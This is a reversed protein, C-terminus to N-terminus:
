VNLVKIKTTIKRVQLCPRSLRKCKLLRFERRRLGGAVPQTIQTRQYIARLVSREVQFAGREAPSPEYDRRLTQFRAIEQRIMQAAHPLNDGGVTRHDFLVIVIREAFSPSRNRSRNGVVTMPEAALLLLCKQTKGIDIEPRAHVIGIPSPPERLIRQRLLVIRPRWITIAYIIRYFINIRIPQVYPFNAWGSINCHYLIIFYSFNTKNVLFSFLRFAIFEAFHYKTDLLCLDPPSSM